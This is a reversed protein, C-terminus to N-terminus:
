GHDAGNPNTTAGAVLPGQDPQYTGGAGGNYAAYFECDPPLRDADFPAAVTVAFINGLIPDQTPGDVKVAIPGDPQVGGAAIRVAETQQEALDQLYARAAARTDPMDRAPVAVTLGMQTVRTM